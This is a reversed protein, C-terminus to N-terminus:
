GVAEVRRTEANENLFEVTVGRARPVIASYGAVSLCGEFFEVGTNEASVIRPNILVHFPVPKRERELLQGQTLKQHYEERDEIVALQLAVGVQPAALGVGPATRMTDRMHAILEQIEHSLIDERSLARAAGRLVEEGAQM